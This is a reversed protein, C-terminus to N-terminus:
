FNNQFYEILEYIKTFPETSGDQSNLKEIKKANKIADPLKEIVVKSLEKPFASKKSYKFKKNGTKKRVLEELKEIAADDNKYEVRSDTFHMILWFEYSPDSNIRDVNSKLPLRM